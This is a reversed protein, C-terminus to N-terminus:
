VVKWALVVKTASFKVVHAVQLHCEEALGLLARLCADVPGHVHTGDNSRLVTVIFLPSLDNGSRWRYFIPKLGGRLHLYNCTM